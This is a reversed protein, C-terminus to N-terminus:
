LRTLLYPGVLLTTSCVSLLLSAAFLRLNHRM